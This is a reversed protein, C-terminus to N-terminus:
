QIAVTVENSTRGVYTLRVPVASGTAVGSPVRVNVQNVGTWGQANGFSVVEAMRGGIAVQPPIVSRDTLGVCYIQVTEGATAPNDPSALQGTTNHLIFGQGKGDGSVSLLFAAPILAMPTYLEASSTGGYFIGGVYSVGGAILVSGDNLLTATHVERPATMNGTPTWTGSTPDYLEASSVTGFFFNGPGGDTEGGAALVTGNPLLTLSHGARRSGMFSTTGFAGTMPDYLEAWSSRGCNDSEGGAFLVEGDTLLTAASYDCPGTMHGTISFAGTAPNYLEPEYLQSPFLVRGDALLVSPPCSDCGGPAAYDGAASFTGTDPDYLEADGFNPYQVPYGGGGVILVKGTALLIATHGGRPQIMDGTATFVGTSPDYLEASAIPFSGELYGGAILM